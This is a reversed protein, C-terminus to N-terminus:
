SVVQESWFNIGWAVASMPSAVMLPSMGSDEMMLTLGGLQWYRGTVMVMVMEMEMEMVILSVTQWLM